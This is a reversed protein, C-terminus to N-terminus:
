IEELIFYNDWKKEILKFKTWPKFLVEDEDPTYSFKQISKWTKWKIELTIGNNWSFDESIYINKSTSIFWKDSYIEWIDMNNLIEKQTKSDMWRYFFWKEDELKDLAKEFERLWIKNKSTLNNNRLEYNLDKYFDYESNTYKNIAYIWSKQINKSKWYELIKEPNPSANFNSEDNKFNDFYEQEEKNVIYKYEKEAKFEKNWDNKDNVKYKKHKIIEIANSNLIVLEDEWNDLLDVADYWKKKLDLIYDNLEEAYDIWEIRAIKLNKTPKVEFVVWEPWYATWFVSAKKPSTSFSISDQKAWYWWWKIVEDWLESWKKFWNKLISDLNKINTWHYLKDIKAESTFIKVEKKEEKFNKSKRVKEWFDIKEQKTELGYSEFIENWKIGSKQYMEEWSNFKKVFKITEEDFDWNINRKEIKKPIKVVKEKDIFGAERKILNEIADIKWRTEPNFLSLKEKFWYRIESELPMKQYEKVYEVFEKFKNEDYEKLIEDDVKTFYKEDNLDGKNM